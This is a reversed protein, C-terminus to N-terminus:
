FVSQKLRKLVSETTLLHTKRRLWHSELVYLVVIGSTTFQISDFLVPPSSLIDEVNPNICESELFRM